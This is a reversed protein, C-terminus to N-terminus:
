LPDRTLEGDVRRWIGLPNEDRLEPPLVAAPANQWAVPRLFRRIATMGVSTHAPFSAAPYPGGHHMGHTVAVGTPFGDYVVRGARAALLETLLALLEADDDPQAHISGTLQGEIRGIAALLEEPAGYRLLVVVPGFHEELLAAGEAVASAQAEYAAPQHRFGEGTFAPTRGLPEAEGEEILRQVAAALADRLRENLLVTPEVADLREAVTRAFEDGAAGDPVFVVGPKTCLQGGFNSVSAVLGEAIADARAALAAETVVIPNISGMEAYVPIPNPRRAARDALARGGATSGTFGVAAVAPADVLAEGVEVGAALLHEFTGEPLGADAVAAKVERAVLEGTGPHSPHGKVVVPCGAALASATDGGATSFALPFNSAGFVVVPGIPVLMRRVDPRPIPKADPDPTDIIAEVYDGADLVAAFAELQGATRELESRLRAEPLGTESGAVAVVEDGAARLRAAAGRLLTARAGRDRLAPDHFAREAADVAAAVDAASAEDYSEGPLGTAPDVANFTSPMAHVTSTRHSFWNFLL